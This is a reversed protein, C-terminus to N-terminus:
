HFGDASFVQKMDRNNDYAGSEGRTPCLCGGIPLPSLVTVGALYNRKRLDTPEMFWVSKRNFSRVHRSSAVLIAM